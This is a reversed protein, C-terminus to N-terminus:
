LGLHQYEALYAAFRTFTFLLTICKYLAKEMYISLPVKCHDIVGLPGSAYIYAGRAAAELRDM